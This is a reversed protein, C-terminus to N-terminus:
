REVVKATMDKLNFEVTLLENYELWKKLRDEYEEKAGQRIDEPLDQVAHFLVDPIKFSLRITSPIEQEVERGENDMMLVKM